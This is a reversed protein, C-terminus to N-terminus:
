AKAARRWSRPPGSSSGPRWSIPSAQSCAGKRKTGPVPRGTARRWVEEGGSRFRRRLFDAFLHHYRYWVHQRDLPILFLNSEALHALIEPVDELGTVARALDANFRELLSTAQLFQRVRPEERDLLEEAMYEDAHSRLDVMERLYRGVREPEM